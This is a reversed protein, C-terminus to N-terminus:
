RDCIFGAGMGCSVSARSDLWCFPRGGREDVSLVCLADPTPHYWLDGSPRRRTYQVEELIEVDGSEPEAHIVGALLERRNNATVLGESTIGLTVPEVAVLEGGITVAVLRGVYVIESDPPGVPRARPPNDLWPDLDGPGAFPDDADAFYQEECLRCREEWAALKAEHLRGLVARRDAPKSYDGRKAAEVSEAFVQYYAEDWSLVDPQFEGYTGDCYACTESQLVGRAV